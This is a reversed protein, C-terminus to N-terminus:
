VYFDKLGKNRFDSTRLYKIFGIAQIMLNIITLYFALIQTLVQFKLEETTGFKPGFFLVYLYIVLVFSYVINIIFYSLLKKVGSQMIIIFITWALLSAFLIKLFVLHNDIYLNFPSFAIGIFSIGSLVLSANSLYGIFLNKGAGFELTKWINSFYILVLGMGSMAITFLISSITNIKGSITVTSGLISLYNEFFNYHISLRDILSGGPFALMASGTLIVFLISCLVVLKCRRILGKYM